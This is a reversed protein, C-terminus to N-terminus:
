YNDYKMWRSELWKSLSERVVGTKQITLAHLTLVTRGSCAAKDSSECGNLGM